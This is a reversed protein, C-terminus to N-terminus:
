NQLIVCLNIIPLASKLTEMKFHKKEIHDNLNSLNLILRHSGDTKTCFFISSIVEGSCHETEEKVAKSILKNLLSDIIESDVYNFQIQGRSCQDSPNSDFEINYGQSVITLLNKDSTIHTWNSYFHSIQGGQSSEPTNM